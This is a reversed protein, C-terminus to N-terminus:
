REPTRPIAFFANASTTVMDADGGVFGVPVLMVSTERNEREHISVDHGSLGQREIMAHFAGEDSGFTFNTAMTFRLLYDSMFVHYGWVGFLSFRANDNHTLENPRGEAFARRLNYIDMFNGHEDQFYIGPTPDLFIWQQLERSFAHVFVHVPHDDELPRGTVHMAEIGYLRLVEALLVALLRCNGGGNHYERMFNIISVADRNEPMGSMGDHHFNDTVWYLLAIMLDVDHLGATIEDLGFEEILDAYLDRRNLDFTFVIETGDDAFYLFENLEAVRNNFHNQSLLFNLVGSSFVAVVLLVALCVLVKKRRKGKNTETSKVAEEQRSQPQNLDDM